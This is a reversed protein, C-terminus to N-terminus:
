AVVNQIIASVETKARLACVWLKRSAFDTFTQAYLKRGLGEVEFKGVLDTGIMQGPRDLERTSPSFPLRQIKVPKCTIRGSSDLASLLKHNRIASTTEGQVSVDDSDEGSGDSPDVREKAENTDRWELAELVKPLDSKLSFDVRRGYFISRCATELCRKFSAHGM